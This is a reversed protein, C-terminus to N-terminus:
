KLHTQHFSAEKIYSLIPDMWTNLPHVLFVQLGEISPVTQVKM